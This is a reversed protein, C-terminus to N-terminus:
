SCEYLSCVKTIPGSSTEPLASSYQLCSATVQEVLSRFTKNRAVFDTECNVEVITASRGPEVAIGILGQATPRGELKTAKAWGLAQAQEQLWKEAQVTCYM